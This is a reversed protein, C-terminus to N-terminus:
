TTVRWALAARRDPVYRCFTGTRVSVALHRGLEPDVAEIAAMARKLALTVAARARESSAGTKRHKGGLALTRGLEDALAEIEDQAREFAGSDGRAEAEAADARLERLRRQYAARARDDIMPLGEAAAGEDRADPAALELVHVEAEPEALLRALYHLGRLDKLAKTRGAFTLSWAGDRHSLAAISAPASSPQAGLNAMERETLELQPRAGLRRNEAQARAYAEKADEIKGLAALLRAVHRWGSGFCMASSGMVNRDAYPLLLELTRACIEREGLSVAADAILALTAVHVFDHPLRAFDDAVVRSLEARAEDLRGLVALARALHARIFVGFHYRDAEARLVPIQEAILAPDGRDAGMVALMCARNLATSPDNSSAGIEVVRAIAELAEEWRGAMMARMGRRISANMMLHPLRLEEALAAFAEMEPDARAIDGLEFLANLRWRIGDALRERDGARRAVDIIEEAAVLREKPYDPGSLAQVRANLALALLEDDNKARAIAVSEASIADRRERSAPDMWLAMSLQALVAALVEEGGERRVAVEARELLAIASREFSVFEFCRAHGIAAQGFEEARGKAEALAAARLFTARATPRQGAAAQAAGLSLLVRGEQEAVDLALAFQEVADEYAFARMARDGAQMARELARAPDVLPLARHFHRAIEAAHRDGDGYKKDLMEAAAAHLRMREMPELDGHMAEGFLAHAFSWRGEQEIVIRERKAQEVAALARDLPWGIMEVIAGANVPRGVVAMLALVARADADVRLLQARVVTRVGEPVAIGRMAEPLALVEGLFFPNGGTAARMSTVMAHSGPSGLADAVLQGVDHEGLGSLAIRRAERGLPAFVTEERSTAVVLLRAQRLGRLVAQLLSMSSADAWQADDIVLVLPVAASLGQLLDIVAMWVRAPDAREAGEGFLEPDVRALLPRSARSAEEFAPLVSWARFAQAWPWHAPTGALEWCRAWATSAGVARSVIEEALRTKGIGPEGSILVARTRGSLAEEIEREAVSLEHTRGVFRTM